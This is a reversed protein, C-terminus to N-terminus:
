RRKEWSSRPRECKDNRREWRHGRSHGRAKCSGEAQEKEGGETENNDVAGDTVGRSQRRGKALMASASPYPPTAVLRVLYSHGSAGDDKQRSDLPTTRGRGYGGRSQQKAGETKMGRELTLGPPTVEGLNEVEYDEGAGVNNPEHEDVV